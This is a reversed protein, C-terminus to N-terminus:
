TGLAAVLRDHERMSIGLQGRLDALFSEEQHSIHGDSVAGELAAQYVEMRRTQLYVEAEPGRIRRLFAGLALGPLIALAVEALVTSGIALLPREVFSPGM